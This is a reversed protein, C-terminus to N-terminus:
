LIKREKRTTQPKSESSKPKSEVNQPMRENTKPKREDIQPKSKGIQPKHEITKPKRKKTKPKRMTMVTKTVGQKVIGMVSFGSVFLSILSIILSLGGIGACILGGLTWLATQFDVAQLENEFYPYVIRETRMGMYPLKPLIRCRNPFTYRASNERIMTTDENRKVATRFITDAFGDVPNPLTAEFTTYGVESYSGAQYGYSSMYIRPIDGYSKEYAATDRERATIGTVTLIRDNWSIEMGVVNLTGFLRWALDEDLVVGDPLTPDHAFPSGYLFELPHFTFFNGGVYMAAATVTSKPGQLSVTSEGYYSCAWVSGKESSAISAEELATKMAAAYQEVEYDSLATSSDTHLVITAYEEGSSSWREGANLADFDATIGSCIWEAIGFLLLFVATIGAFIASLRLGKKSYKM